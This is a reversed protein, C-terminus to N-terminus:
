EVFMWYICKYLSSKVVVLYFLILLDREREREREREKYCQNKKAMVSKVRIYWNAVTKCSTLNIQLHFFPYPNREMGLAPMLHCYGMCNLMRYNLKKTNRRKSLNVVQVYPAPVAGLHGCCFWAFWWLFTNKIIKFDINLNWKDEM